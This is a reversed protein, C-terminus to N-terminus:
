LVQQASVLCFCDEPVYFTETILLQEEGYMIRIHTVGGKERRM